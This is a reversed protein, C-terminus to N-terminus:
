YSVKEFIINKECDIRFEFYLIPLSIGKRNYNRFANVIYQWNRKNHPPAVIVPQINWNFAGDLHRGSRQSAWNVYYEIQNVVEPHVPEDKLEILRYEKREGSQCITLIDIKQMGVGCPVENGFWILNNGVVPNLNFNIGINETFYLQLCSEYARKKKQLKCIESLVNFNFNRPYPYSQRKQTKIIKRNIIDWDFGGTFQTNAIPVGVNTNRIMDMLKKAEWPLLPTCGRKGKLKRYILSWQIETAYIPLKDLAEWEPLGESYVEYPEILTRYILKKGLNPQFGNQGPTHFVLPLHNAVKFIGYFGGKVKTTAEIYFIVFDGARVRKIDSLLSIDEDKNKAGTGAFLYKLHYPFTSDNVIFVHTKM